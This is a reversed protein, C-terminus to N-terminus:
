PYLQFGLSLFFVFISLYIFLCYLCVSFYPLAQKTCSILRQVSELDTPDLPRTLDVQETVLDVLQQYGKVSQCTKLDRLIGMMLSFEDESSAAQFSQHNTHQKSLSPTHKHTNM